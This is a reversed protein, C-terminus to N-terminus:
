PYSVNGYVFFDYGNLIIESEKKNQDVSAIANMANQHCLSWILSKAIECIIFYQLAFFKCSKSWVM